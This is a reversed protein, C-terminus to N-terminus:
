DMFTKLVVLVVYVLILISTYSLKMSSAISIEFNVKYNDFNQLWKPMKEHQQCINMTTGLHRCISCIIYTAMQDCQNQEMDKFHPALAIVVVVFVM